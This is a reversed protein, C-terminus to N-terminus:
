RIEVAGSVTVHLEDNQVTLNSLELARVGISYPATKDPATLKGVADLLNIRLPSLLDAGILNQLAAAVLPKDAGELRVDELLAEHSRVVPRASLMVASPETLSQCKGSILAGIHGGFHAGIFVRGQRFSVTPNELYPDNCRDPKYLYHRGNDKFLQAKLAKTVASANVVIDITQSSPAALAFTSALLLASLTTIALPHTM